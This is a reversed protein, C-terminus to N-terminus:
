KRAKKDKLIMFVDPDLDLMDGMDPKLPIVDLENFNKM